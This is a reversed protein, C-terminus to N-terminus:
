ASMTLGTLRKPQRPPQGGRRREQQGATNGQKGQPGPASQRPGADFHVVADPTNTDFHGRIACPGDKVAGAPRVPNRHNIGM